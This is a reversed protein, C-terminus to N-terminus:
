QPLAHTCTVTAICTNRICRICALSPLAHTGSSAYAFLYFAVRLTMRPECLTGKPDSSCTPWHILRDHQRQAGGGARGRPAALPKHRWGSSSCSTTRSPPPAPPCRPRCTTWATQMALRCPHLNVPLCAPLSTIHLSHYSMPLGHMLPQIPAAPGACVHSLEAQQLHQQLPLDAGFRAAWLLLGGCTGLWWAWRSLCRWTRRRSCTQPAGGGQGGCRSRGGVAAAAPRGMMKRSGSPAAAAGHGELAAAAGLARLQRRPLGSAAPGHAPPHHRCSHM